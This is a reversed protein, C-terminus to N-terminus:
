EFQLIKSFGTMEFVEMVEPHVGRFVLTGSTLLQKQLAIIVRLGASSVYDCQSLDVVLNNAGDALVANAAEEFEPATNTDLRGALAIVTVDGDQQVSIDLASM